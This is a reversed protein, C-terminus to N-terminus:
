LVKLLYSTLINVVKQTLQIKIFVILSFLPSSHAEMISKKIKKM